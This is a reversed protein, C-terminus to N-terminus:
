NVVNKHGVTEVGGQKKKGPIDILFLVDGLICPTKRDVKSGKSM